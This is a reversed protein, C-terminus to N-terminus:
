FRYGLGIFLYNFYSKINLNEIGELNGDLRNTLGFSYRAEIILEETIDYSAGLAVGAAFQKLGASDEKDLIYDLQPGALFALREDPLFKILLPVQLIGSSNGDQSYSSYILEPQFCVKESLSLEGFAGIYFGSVNDSATVDEVKVKLIASTYGAKIGFNFENSKTQEDQASVKLLGFMLIAAIFYLKKM